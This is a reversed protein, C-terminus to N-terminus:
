LYNSGFLLSSVRRNKNLFLILYISVIIVFFSIVPTVLFNYIFFNSLEIKILKNMFYAVLITHVIYIALTKKGFQIIIDVLRSGGPRIGWLYKRALVVFFLAASVGFLLKFVRLFILKYFHSYQIYYIETSIELYQNKCALFLGIYLFLYLPLIKVFFNNDLWTRLKIGILFCPYMLAINFIPLLQSMIITFVLTFVISLTTNFCIWALIYCIFLSKLFWFSVWFTNVYYFIDRIKNESYHVLLIMVVLIFGWSICPLLLSCFKKKCIMLFSLNMSSESFYGCLVMFLSMHFSYIFKLVPNDFSYTNMGYQVVHGWVVLFCAFAKLIDFAYLRNQSSM